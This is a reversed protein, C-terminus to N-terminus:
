LYTSIEILNEDPDYFYVSHIHGMAGTRQSPGEIINISNSKLHDVIKDISMDTILCIDTSGPTAHLVNPDILKNVKHLNIKQSGFHLAVRNEGFEKKVMGLIKEYFLSTTEINKVTLVIHDIAKVRM